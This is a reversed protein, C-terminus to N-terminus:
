TMPRNLDELLAVLEEHSKKINYEYEPHMKSIILQFFLLRVFIFIVIVLTHDLEWKMKKSLVFFGVFFIGLGLEYGIFKNTSETVVKSSSNSNLWIEHKFFKNRIKLIGSFKSYSIEMEPYRQNLVQIIEESSLGTLILRTQKKWFESNIM